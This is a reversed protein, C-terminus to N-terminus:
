KASIGIKSGFNCFWIIYAYFVFMLCMAAIIGMADVMAGMVPMLLAGGIVGTNIVGSAAKTHPGLEQLGLNFILPWMVSHFLGAALMLWIGVMSTSLVLSLAICAAGLCLCATLLKRPEFKTLIGAGVFRGVMMGGWYWSLYSTSLAALAASDMEPHLLQFRYPLMSPVGIEVGMYMFIGLAGLWVHTYQFVSSKYQKKEGSEEEAQKGEDIKPLKLFVLIGCIILTFIGLGLFPGPVYEPAPTKGAIIVYTIFMPAVTTAVSNLAQSLTMRFAGSEPRGLVMVYPNAVNQLMVVGMAVICMSLLFVIYVNAGAGIAWNIGFSNIVFGIGAVALGLLLTAKYGIKSMLMAFPIALLYAGYFATNVYQGQQASLDFAQSLFAIMSNNMTTIFGILFCVIFVIILPFLYNPAQKQSM